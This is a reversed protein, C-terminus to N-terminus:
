GHFYNCAQNLTATSSPEFPTSLFDLRQCHKCFVMTPEQIADRPKLSIFPRRLASIVSSSGFSSNVFVSTLSSCINIVGGGSLNPWLDVKEESQRTYQAVCTYCGTLSSMVSSMVVTINCFPTACRQKKRHWVTSSGQSQRIRVSLQLSSLDHCAESNLQTLHTPTFIVCRQLERVQWIKLCMVMGLKKDAKLSCVPVKNPMEMVRVQLVFWVCILAAWLFICKCVPMKWDITKNNSKGQSWQKHKAILDTTGFNKM